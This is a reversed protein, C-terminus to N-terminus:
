DKAKSGINQELFEFIQKYLDVNNETKGFGHGEGAKVNVAKPANGARELARVMKRTQEMPTRYDDGGAYILVPQKIRDALNAPSLEPPIQAPKSVGVMGLWFSVGAANYPIDGATSTILMEVDSVVLGAVGCKFTQPFRALSMLTAYGGYSAGSICIRGPDAIGEAVAWKAADEHDELMKRGFDGFGAYFVKSGFGPTIRFNPVIVAYGRSAFMQGEFWGFGGGWSDARVSPGGHVHVITPLREGPKRNKPLFYYGLLELGDRAKFYFPQMEVLQENKIWPRSVFLEELTRKEEDFLYWRTPSRDSFATVVLRSGEPTRYFSNLTGTLAADLTRQIKQYAEDTYVRQPKEADVSYGVINQTKWDRLVGGTRDGQATAGMDFRPHQAVLDGLKRTAPDYRYIAMTDRGGNFAVQLTQNDAEFALPVFTPGKTLDFRALEDWEAAEDKRYSVVYTLTDKIWSTVVRPKFERDLV